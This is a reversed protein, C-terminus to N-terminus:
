HKNFELLFDDVLRWRYKESSEGEPQTEPQDSFMINALLNKFWHKSMGTTMGIAPSPIFKNDSVPKWLDRQSNFEFQTILILIGFFKLLEGMEMEQLDDECLKKNTLAIINRMAQLPFCAMFDVSGNIDHKCYELDTYWNLNDTTVTLKIDSDDDDSEDSDEEAEDAPVQQQV